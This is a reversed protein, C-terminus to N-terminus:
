EVEACVFTFIDTWSVHTRGAREYRERMGRIGDRLRSDSLQAESMVSPIWRKELRHWYANAPVSIEHSRSWKSVNGFLNMDVLQREYRDALGYLPRLADVIADRWEQPFPWPWWHPSMNRAQFLLRGGPRIARTIGRVTEPFATHHIYHASQMFYVCDFRRRFASSARACAAAFAQASAHEQDFRDSVDFDAGVLAVRQEGLLVPSPEVATIRLGPVRRLLRQAWFCSGAGVDAAEYGRAGSAEIDLAELMCDEVWRRYRPGFDFFDTFTGEYEEYPNRQDSRFGGGRDVDTHETHM